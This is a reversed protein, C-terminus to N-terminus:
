DVNESFLILHILIYCNNIVVKLILLVSSLFYIWGRLSVLSFSLSPLIIQLCSGASVVLTTKSKM